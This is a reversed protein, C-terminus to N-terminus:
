NDNTEAHIFRRGALPGLMDALSRRKKRLKKVLVEPVPWPEFKPRKKWNGTAATNVNLADYIGALVRYSGDVDVHYEWHDPDRRMATTKSGEPLRAYLALILSPDRGQKVHEVLDVGYYFLM